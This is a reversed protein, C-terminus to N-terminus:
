ESATTPPRTRPVEIHAPRSAPAQPTLPELRNRIRKRTSEDVALVLIPGERFVAGDRTLENGWREVSAGPIVGDAAAAIVAGLCADLHDHTLHHVEPFRVGLAELVTRRAAVGAAEKKRPLRGALRRWNGGPYHEGVGSVLSAGSVPTGARDFATFLEVSTRVFGSFPGKTPTTSPTKGAAGLLRESERMTAGPRALAQPGDLVAGRAARVEPLLASVDDTGGEYTWRWFRAALAGGVLDLGCVDVDRARRSYADTLDAGLYSAVDQCFTRM